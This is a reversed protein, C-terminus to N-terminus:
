FKKKIDFEAEWDDDFVENPIRKMEAKTYMRSLQDKEWEKDEEQSKKTVRYIDKDQDKEEDIMRIFEYAPEIPREVGEGSGLFLHKDPESM